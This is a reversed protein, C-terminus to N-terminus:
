PINSFSTLQNSALISYKFFSNYFYKKQINKLKKLNMILSKIMNKKFLINNINM